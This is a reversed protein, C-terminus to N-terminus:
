RWRRTRGDATMEEESNLAVGGGKDRGEEEADEGDDLDEDGPTTNLAM